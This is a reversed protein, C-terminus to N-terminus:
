TASRKRVIPIARRQIHRDFEKLLRYGAFVGFRVVKAMADDNEPLVFRDNM